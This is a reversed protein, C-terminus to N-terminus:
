YLATNGKKTGYSQKPIGQKGSESEVITLKVKEIQGRQKIKKVVPNVKQMLNYSKKTLRWDIFFVLAEESSNKIPKFSTIHIAKKKLHQHGKEIFENSLFNLGTM